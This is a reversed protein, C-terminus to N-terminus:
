RRVPKATRQNAEDLTEFDHAELGHSMEFDQQRLCVSKLNGCIYCRPEQWSHVPAPQAQPPMTANFAGPTQAARNAAVAMVHAALAADTDTWSDALIKLQAVIGPQQWDPRVTQIANALSVLHSHNM